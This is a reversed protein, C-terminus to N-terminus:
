WWDIFKPDKEVLYKYMHQPKNINKTNKSLFFFLISARTLISGHCMFLLIPWVDRSWNVLSNLGKYLFLNAGQRENHLPDNVDMYM